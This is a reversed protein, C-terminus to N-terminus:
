PVPPPANAADSCDKTFSSTTGDASTLTVTLTGKSRQVNDEVAQIRIEMEFAGTQTTDEVTISEPSTIVCADASVSLVAGAAPVNNYFDSVYMTYNVDAVIDPFDGVVKNNNDLIVATLTSNSMILQTSARVNILARSCAGQDALEQPCLTGNYIGNGNDYVGNENFDVFTEELGSACIRGDVTDEPTCNSAGDYVGNENMDLFAEPKDDHAEGLDWVGNGNEDDFSEEGIATVLVTSRRGHIPGLDDKCPLTITSSTPCSRNDITAVLDQNFLPLRPSQSTWDVSCAGSEGETECSSAISGYETTFLATTGGPVPNNFKDAMRINIATTVGDFDGGGVNHTGVSLSFSNQDPLGTSVVLKDSVTALEIGDVDLTANVRVTTAVNGALVLANAIGDENTTATDNTLSLGGITTSLSFVVDIGQVPSGTADLVRFQVTSTEERGEGGTGKLALSTPTASIFAISGIDAAAINLTVNASNSTSGVIAATVVDTGICGDATFTVTAIGNVTTASAALQASPPTLNACGSGFSVEIANSVLDGDGDVVAVELITSGAAPLNVAGAGIEGLIFDGSGDIRGLALEAEGVQFNMSASFPEGGVSTTVTLTGAGIIPGAQLFLTAMGNSDTLASGSVPEFSGLTTTANVVVESVPGDIIDTVLIDLRGPDVTTVNTTPEGNSNTLTLELTVEPPPTESGGGSGGGIFGPGDSSGGGCAGLALTFIVTFLLRHRTPLGRNEM